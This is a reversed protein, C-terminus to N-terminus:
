ENIVGPVEIYNGNVKPVNRLVEEIDLMEGVVDERYVNKNSGPNIFIITSEVSIEVDKVKDIEELTNNLDKQYKLLQENSLGIQGVDALYEVDEKKIM